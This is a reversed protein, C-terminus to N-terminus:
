QEVFNAIRWSTWRYMRARKGAGLWAVCGLGAYSEVRGTLSAGCGYSHRWLWLAQGAAHTLTGLHALRNPDDREPYCPPLAALVSLVAAEFMRVGTARRM